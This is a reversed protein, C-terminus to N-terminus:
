PNRPNLDFPDVILSTCVFALSAYYMQLTFLVSTTTFCEGYSSFLNVFMMSAEDVFRGTLFRGCGYSGEELLFTVRNLVRSARIVGM